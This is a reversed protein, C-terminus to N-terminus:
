LGLSYLSIGCSVGINLSEAQGGGPIKALVDCSKEVESNLGHSESGFVIAVKDKNDIEKKISNLTNTTNLSTGIVIYGTKQLETIKQLLDQSHHLNCHFISGMTGRIVKSNYADVSGEGLLIDQVGFWDCTRIITGLNGPDKIADLLVIPSSKFNGAMVEQPVIVIALLGDSTEVNTIRKLEDESAWIINVGKKSLQDLLGKNRQEFEINKNKFSLKTYVLTEIVANSKLAEEILKYGEIVFKGERQRFKKQSLGNINKIENKTIHM